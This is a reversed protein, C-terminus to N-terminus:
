SIKCTTSLWTRCGSGWDVSGFAVLRCMPESRTSEALAREGHLIVVRRVDPREQDSGDGGPEDVAAINVGGIRVVVRQHKRKNGSGAHPDSTCM